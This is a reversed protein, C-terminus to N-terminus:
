ATPYNMRITYTVQGIGGAPITVPTDLVTREIVAGRQYAGNYTLAAYLCVESITKDSTGSNTITYLGTCTAGEDDTSYSVTKSATIGTILSGSLKYDDITPATDGKGFMVGPTPSSENYSTLVGNNMACYITMLNLSYASYYAANYTTGSIGKIGNAITGGVMHAALSRYWNKTFM